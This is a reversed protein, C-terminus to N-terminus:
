AWIWYSQHGQLFLLDPCVGVGSIHGCVPFVMPFLLWRCPSPLTSLSLLGASVESKPKWGRSSHSFLNSNNLWGPQHTNQWPLGLLRICCSHLRPCTVWGKPVESRWVCATMEMCLLWWLSLFWHIHYMIIDLMWQAEWTAWHYLVWRGICSIHTQDRPQSSGRSFPVAGWELIRTQSIGHVSSGPPICDM